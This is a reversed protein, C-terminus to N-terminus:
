EEDNLPEDSESISSTTKNAKSILALLNEAECINKDFTFSLTPVYRLECRAALAKRLFGKANILVTSVEDVQVSEPITFYVMANKLDPSLDVLTITLGKLRPDVVDQSIVFALERKILDAIRKSRLSGM